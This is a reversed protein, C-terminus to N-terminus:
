SREHGMEDNKLMETIKEDKEPAKNNKVIIGRLTMKM